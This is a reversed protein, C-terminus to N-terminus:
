KVSDFKNLFFARLFILVLVMLFFQFLKCIFSLRLSIKLLSGVVDNLCFLFMWFNIPARQIFFLLTLFSKFVKFFPLHRGHPDFASIYTAFLHFSCCCELALLCVFSPLYKVVCVTLCSIGNAYPTRLICGVTHRYFCSM